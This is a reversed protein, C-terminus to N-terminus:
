IPNWHQMWPMALHVIAHERRSHQWMIRCAPHSHSALNHRWTEESTQPVPTPLRRKRWSFCGQHNKAEPLNHPRIERSIDQLCAAEQQRRHELAELHQHKRALKGEAIQPESCQELDEREKEQHADLPNWDTDLLVFVTTKNLDAHVFYFWCIVHSWRLVQPTTDFHNDVIHNADSSTDTLLQPATLSTQLVFSFCKNTAKQTFDTTTSSCVGQEQLDYFLNTNILIM